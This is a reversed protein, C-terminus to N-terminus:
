DFNMPVYDVFGGDIKKGNTVNRSFFNLQM